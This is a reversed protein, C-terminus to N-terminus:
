SWDFVEVKNNVYHAGICIADCEDQTPKVGYTNVVWEQAAKKQAARDRGKIGLTSKWVTSLVATRPMKLEVFLEYLVGFVEALAKFTQVNNAVNGQLQIDEFAVEDIDNEQILSIVKNRIKVLRVPIDSDDFTFKGYNVLVGDKFVAYGSTISAQDLALLNSM